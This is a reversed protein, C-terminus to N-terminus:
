AARRGETNTGERAGGAIGYIVAEDRYLRDTQILFFLSSLRRAAHAGSGVPGM